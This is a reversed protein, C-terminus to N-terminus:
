NVKVPLVMYTFADGEPPVILMPSLPGSLQLIVEDTDCHNLAESIYRSNFCIEIPPGVTSVETEIEAGGDATSSSVVLLDGDFVCKVPGKDPSDIFVSAGSVAELLRGTGARVSTPCSVPMSKRYNMFTGQLLDSILSYEGVTVVTQSGSVNLEAAGDDDKLLRLLSKASRAPLIFSLEDGNYAIFDKRVALRYGDLAALELEGPRVTFKIGRHVTRTEDSSACFETGRILERLVSQGVSVTASAERVDIQPFADPKLGNVSFHKRACDISCLYNENVEIRVDEGNLRTLIDCLKKAPIVFAGEEDIMAAIEARVGTILNYGAIEVTGSGTSRVLLCETYPNTTRSCAASQVDQCIKSMESTQCRFIM